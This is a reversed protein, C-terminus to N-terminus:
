FQAETINLNCAASSSAYVAGVYRNEQKIEYPSSSATIIIGSTAPQGIQTGSSNAFRLYVPVSCSSQVQFIAYARKTSSALISVSNGASLAM